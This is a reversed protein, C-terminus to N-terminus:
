IKKILKKSEELDIKKVKLEKIINVVNITSIDKDLYLNINSELIGIEQLSKIGLIISKINDKFYSNELIRIDINDINEMVEFLYILSITKLIKRQDIISYNNKTKLFLETIKNLKEITLDTKKNNNEILNILYEKKLEDLYNDISDTNKKSFNLYFEIESELTVLTELSLPKITPFTSELIEKYKKKFKEKENLDTVQEILFEINEMETTITNQKERSEKICENFSNKNYMYKLYSLFKKRKINNFIGKNFQNLYENVDVQEIVGENLLVSNIKNLSNNNMKYSVILKYNCRRGYRRIVKFDCLFNTQVLPFILGTFLEKGYLHNKYNVLEFVIDVCKDDSYFNVKGNSLESNFYDKIEKDILGRFLHMSIYKKKEYSVNAFIKNNLNKNAFSVCKNKSVLLTYVSDQFSNMLCLTGKYYKKM